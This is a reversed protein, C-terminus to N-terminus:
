LSADNNPQFKKKWSVDLVHLYIGNLWFDIIWHMAPQVSFFGSDLRDMSSRAFTKFVNFISKIVVCRPYFYSYSDFATTWRRAHSLMHVIYAKCAKWFWLGVFNILSVTSLGWGGVSLQVRCSGGDSKVKINKGDKGDWGRRREPWCARSATSGSKDTTTAWPDLPVVKFQLIALSAALKPSSFYQTQSLSM